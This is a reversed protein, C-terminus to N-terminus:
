VSQNHLINSNTVARFDNWRLPSYLVVDAATPADPCPPQLLPFMRKQSLEFNSKSINYM